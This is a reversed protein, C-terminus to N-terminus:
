VHAALTVAAFPLDEPCYLSKWRWYVHFDFLLDKLNYGVRFCCLCIVSRWFNDDWPVGITSNFSCVTLDTVGRCSCFIEGCPNDLCKGMYDELTFKSPLNKKVKRQEHRTTM